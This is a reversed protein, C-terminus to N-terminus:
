FYHSKENKGKRLVSHSIFLRAKPNDQSPADPDVMALTFTANELFTSMDIIPQKQLKKLPIKQGPYMISTNSPFIIDLSSICHRPNQLKLDSFIHNDELARNIFCNEQIAKSFVIFKLCILLLTTKFM